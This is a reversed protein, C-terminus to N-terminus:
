LEDEIKDFVELVKKTDGEIAAQRGEIILRDVDAFIDAKFQRIVNAKALMLERPRCFFRNRWLFQFVFEQQIDVGAPDTLADVSVDISGFSQPAPRRIGTFKSEIIRMLKSM